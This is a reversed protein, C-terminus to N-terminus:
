SGVVIKARRNDREDVSGIVIPMVTSFFFFSKRFTFVPSSRWERASDSSKRSMEKISSM